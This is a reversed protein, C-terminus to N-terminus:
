EINALQEYHQRAVRRAAPRARHAAPNVLVLKQLKQVFNFLVLAFPPFVWTGRSELRETGGDSAELPTPCARLCQDGYEFM